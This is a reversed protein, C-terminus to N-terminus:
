WRRGELGDSASAARLGKGMETPSGITKPQELEIYMSNVM